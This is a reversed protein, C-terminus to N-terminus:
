KVVNLTADFIPEIVLKGGGQIFRFERFALIIRNVRTLRRNKEENNSKQQNSATIIHLFIRTMLSM